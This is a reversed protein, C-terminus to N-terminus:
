GAARWAAAFAAVSPYRDAPDDGTARRAVDLRAPSGRVAQEDSLLVLATRGLTFVTTREDITAGREHEEPAMFRSSGVMRGILNTFPGRHYHDLDIVRMADTAFDYLLSGDYFDSAIWGAAALVRHLDFVADLCRELAPAPLARFRQFASVPDPRQEAPVGVVEGELWEYVLVPGDVAAVVAHLTPLCPHAVSRALEVANRLLAVRSAHGADVRGATKVFYRQGDREVGYAANGSGREFVAFVAGAARVLEDASVAVAACELLANV